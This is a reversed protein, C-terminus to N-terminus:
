IHLLALGGRAAAVDAAARVAADERAALMAGVHDRISTVAQAVVDKPLDAFGTQVIFEAARRTGTITELANM